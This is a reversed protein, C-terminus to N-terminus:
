LFPTIEPYVLVVLLPQKSIKNHFCTMEEWYFIFVFLLVKGNETVEARHIWYETDFGLKTSLLFWDAGWLSATQLM